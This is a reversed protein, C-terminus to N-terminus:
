SDPRDLEDLVAGVVVSENTQDATVAEEGTAPAAYQRVLEFSGIRAPGTGLLGVLTAAVGDGAGARDNGPGTVPVTYLFGAADRVV